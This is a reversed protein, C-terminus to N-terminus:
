IEKKMVKEVESDRELLTKINGQINNKKQQKKMLPVEPPLIQYDTELKQM